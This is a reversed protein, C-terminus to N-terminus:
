LALLQPHKIIFGIALVGLVIAAIVAGVVICLTCSCCCCCRTRSPTVKHKADILSWRVKDMMSAEYQYGIEEDRQPASTPIFGFLKPQPENSRLSAKTPLPGKRKSGWPNLTDMGWGQSQPAAAGEADPDEAAAAAAAEKQKRQERRKKAWALAEDRKRRREQEETETSAGGARFYDM